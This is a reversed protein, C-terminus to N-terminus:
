GVERCDGRHVTALVEGIGRTRGELSQICHLGHGWNVRHPTHSTPFLTSPNLPQFPASSRPTPNHPPSIPVSGTLEMWMPPPPFYRPISRLRESDGIDPLRPSTMLEKDRPYIISSVLSLDVSTHPLLWSTWEGDSDVRGPTQGNLMGALVLLRLVGM